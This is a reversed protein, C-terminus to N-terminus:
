ILTVIAYPDEELFADECSFYNYGSYYSNGFPNFEKKPIEFIYISDIIPEYFDSIPANYRLIGIMDFTMEKGVSIEEGQYDRYYIEDGPLVFEFDIRNSLFAGGESNNIKICGVFDPFFYKQPFIGENKIKLRGVNIKAKRLYEVNDYSIYKEFDIESFPISKHLDLEELFDQTHYVLLISFAVFLSILIILLYIKNKM